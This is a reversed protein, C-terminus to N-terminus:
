FGPTRIFKGNNDVILGRANGLKALMEYGKEPGVVFVAMAVGQAQAANQMVITTGKCPPNITRKSRPDILPQGRFQNSSATAIGANSVVLNLAHRAYTGSDDQVQIKWPGTLGQGVGRFVNGVKVMANQMNAGSIMRILYEALFGEVLTNFRAQMGSRKLEVTSDGLDVKIDKWSGEGAYTVDFAGGTWSSITRAEEFAQAVDGSVKVPGQGAAANIRAVDSSPNQWDLRRYTEDARASIIDILRDVDAADKQWGVVLIVGPLRGGITLQRQFIKIGGEARAGKPVFSVLAAFALLILLFRKTSTKRASSKNSIM